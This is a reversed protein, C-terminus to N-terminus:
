GPMLISNVRNRQSTALRPSELKLLCGVVLSTPQNDFEISNAAPPPPSEIVRFKLLNVLLFRSRPDINYRFLWWDIDKELVMPLCGEVSTTQTSEWRLTRISKSNSFPVVPIIIEQVYVWLVWSSTLILSNRMGISTKNGYISWGNFMSLVEM